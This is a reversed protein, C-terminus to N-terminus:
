VENRELGETANERKETISSNLNEGERRDSFRRRIVVHSYL